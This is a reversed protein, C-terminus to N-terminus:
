PFPIPYDPLRYQSPIWTQMVPEVWGSLYRDNLGAVRVAIPYGVGDKLRLVWLILVAAQADGSSQIAWADAPLRIRHVPHWIGQAVLMFRGSPSCGWEAEITPGWRSGELLPALGPPLVGQESMTRVLAQQDPWTPANTPAPVAHGSRLDVWYLGGPFASPDPPDSRRIAVIAHPPTAQLDACGQIQAYPFAARVPEPLPLRIPQSRLCGESPCDETELCIEGIGGCPVIRASATSTAGREGGGRISVGKSSGFYVDIELYDPFEVCIPKESQKSNFKFHCFILLKKSMLDTFRWSAPPALDPPWPGIWRQGNTLWTWGDLWTQRELAPQFIVMWDGNTQFGDPLPHPTPVSPQSRTAQPPPTPPEPTPRPAPTSTPSPFAPGVGCAGLWLGIMIWGARLAIRM